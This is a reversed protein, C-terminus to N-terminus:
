SVGGLIISHFFLFTKKEHMKGRRLNRLIKSSALNLAKMKMMKNLENEYWGSVQLDMCLWVMVSWSDCGGTEELSVLFEVQASFCGCTVM